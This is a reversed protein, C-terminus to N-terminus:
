FGDTVVVERPKDESRAEADQDMTTQYEVLKKNLLSADRGDKIFGDMAGLIACLEHYDEPCDPVEADDVMDAVRYSYYLRLTYTTDPKPVLTMRDKKLYYGIPRGAQYSILSQQNMTIPELQDEDESNTGPSNVIVLRHSKRYDAPLAYDSQNAVCTTQVCIEHYGEAAKSLRKQAERQGNNIWAKVKARTFYGANPDDLWDLVLDQLQLFTM